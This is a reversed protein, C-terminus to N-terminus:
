RKLGSTPIEPRAEFITGPGSGGRKGGTQTTGYLNGVADAILDSQPSMGDRHQSGKFSYLVTEMSAATAAGTFGLFTAALALRSLNNM